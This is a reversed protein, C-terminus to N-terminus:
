NCAPAVGAITDLLKRRAQEQKGLWESRSSAFCVAQRCFGYLGVTRSVITSHTKRLLPSMIAAPLGLGVSSRLSVRGDINFPENSYDWLERKPDWIYSAIFELAPTGFFSVVPNTAGSFVAGAGYVPLFHMQPCCGRQATKCYFAEWYYGVLGGITYDSLRNLLFDFVQLKDPHRM